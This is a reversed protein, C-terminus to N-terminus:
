RKAPEFSGGQKAGRIFTIKGAANFEYIVTGRSTYVDGTDMTRSALKVGDKIARLETTLEAAMLRHENDIVVIDATVTEKMQTRINRYFDLIARRGRLVGYFSGHDFVVNEDYLEAYRDDGANFRRLYEAYAERTMPMAASSAARSDAGGSVLSAILLVGLLSARLSM